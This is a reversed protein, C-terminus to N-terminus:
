FRSTQSRAGLAPRPSKKASKATKNGGIKQFGQLIDLGGFDDPEDDVYLDLSFLDEKSVDDPNTDFAPPKCPSKQSKQRIPSELYPTKSLAKSNLSAGTVDALINSTKNTRDLHPRRGSRKGPSASFHRSYAVAPSDAFINFGTHVDDNFAYHEDEVIKFAPSFPIEDNLLSMNKVPSGVLERIKNRHNRLNTNPSISAPPKPPLKFTVAPTLPPLMLSNDFHRLPSSSVLAPTPQKLSSRGKSPSIDHSSSRIRAIEEEARGRKIRPRDIDVESNSIYGNPYPRAASSELSSFYGSDDMTALKRKKSRSRSSPLAFETVHPPTDERLQSRHALPPSSHIIQLPSSLHNRSQPPPMNTVEEFDDGTSPADSAPITADSSPETAEPGQRDSVQRDPQTTAQVPHPWASSNAESSPQIPPFWASSNPESSPQSFSRMNPGSTTMPPGSSSSPRRTPKDKIFQAEMGPEIAWYNGKGPDDKPREQKIFAKNLSLNHRISNQWGADSARYHSFSDSIWKYIQALTLRRGPARLISMGILVAYSYPPKTGNDHIQPMNQPEPIQIPKEEEFRAKKYITEPLVAPDQLQRKKRNIESLGTPDPLLRKLPAKYGYTPDPFEAFNDNHYTPSFNEKDASRTIPVTTYVSEQAKQPASNQFSPAISQKVLSDTAFADTDSPPLFTIMTDSFLAKSPNGRPQQASKLPSRGTPGCAPPNFTICKGLSRSLPSDDNSFFPEGFSTSTQPPMDTIDFSTVPDHFIELRRTSAM